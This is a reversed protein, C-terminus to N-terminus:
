YIIYPYITSQIDFIVKSLEKAIICSLIGHGGAIEVVRVEPTTNNLSMFNEVLKDVINLYYLAIFRNSSIQCPVVNWATLSSDAYFETQKSWMCDNSFSDFNLVDSISPLPAVKSLDGTIRGVLGDLEPFEGILDFYDSTSCLMLRAKLKIKSWKTDLSLFGFNGKLRAATCILQIPCHSAKDTCYQLIQSALIDM